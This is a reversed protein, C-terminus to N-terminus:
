TYVEISEIRIREKEEDLLFVNVGDNRIEGDVMCEVVGTYPQERIEYPESTTAGLIYREGDSDTFIIPLGPKAKALADLVADKSFACNKNGTGDTPFGINIKCQIM